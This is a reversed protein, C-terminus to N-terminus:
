SPSLDSRRVKGSATRPLSPVITVVTPAAYSPLTRKVWARLDALAPPRSADVPVIIAVVRQGWKPDARGVVAVEQVQAHSALAQEVATPWVNEGGSIILDGRRGHVTLVGDHLAGLDGTLLWGDADKPDVGSRYTRLLMPGRVQIENDAAIRIEVGDLPTGDYVIGSGTETMGYTAIVNPPRAAPPAQGGVLIRRFLSPDIRALTTPVLSTLTCGNDAAATTEEADFRPHVVVPTDTAIARAVVSLGGIHALPLCALWRDASPDVDLRKSTAVASARVAAHTLVAARPSGTTGSSMVVLADGPETPADVAAAELVAARAPAPLRPDLPLVADGADWARQLLEVFGPDDAALVVLRNTM